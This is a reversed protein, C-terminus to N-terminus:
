NVISCKKKEQTKYKEILKKLKDKDISFCNISDSELIKEDIKSFSLGYTWILFEENTIDEIKDKKYLELINKYMVGNIKIPAVLIYIYMLYYKFDDLNDYRYYEYNKRLCNFFIRSYVFEYAKRQTYKTIYGSEVALTRILQMEITSYGRLSEKIKKRKFTIIYILKIIKCIVRAILELIKFIYYLITTFNSFIKGLLNNKFPFLEKSSRYIKKLKYWIFSVSIWNYSKRRAFFSKDEKDILMSGFEYLKKDSCFQYYPKLKEMKDKIEEFNLTKFDNNLIKVIGIFLIISSIILVGYRYTDQTINLNSILLPYIKLFILTNKILKKCYVTFLFVSILFYIVKYEFIMQYMYDFLYHFPNRMTKKKFKDSFIIEYFVFTIVALIIYIGITSFIGFILLIFLIVYIICTKIRINEKDIEIKTFMICSLLLFILIYKKPLDVDKEFMKIFLESVDMSRDSWTEM